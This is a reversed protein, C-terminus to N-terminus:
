APDGASLLDDVDRGAIAAAARWGSRAADDTWQYEWEGYRGALQIGQAAVFPLLVALADARAHDFVVNAHSLNRARTAIVEDASRLIGMQVLEGVVRDPLSGVPDSLPRERSHYVEVQISGQGSPSMGPALLSPLHARSFSIDEDYVYFWEHDFLDSRAVCVDVLVVSTCLLARAADRVRDPVPVGQLRGVLVDLPMTSVLQEYEESSGDAFRLRRERVDVAVVETDARLSSGPDLAGLFSAFGGRAPYRYSSLYHFDGPVPPELAGRVMEALSPQQMRPGIWDIGLQEPEVTWYKRTYRFPFNEAFTTGYMAVLWDAYTRVQPPHAVADAKDVLCATVLEPPLGRLNVQAPHEVWSGEFWNTIRAPLEHVGGRGEVGREFLRRVRDDRTFSLHPGEDFWHGALRDSSTHGGWGPRGDYVVADHGARRLGDLACLGAIGAGIISTRV